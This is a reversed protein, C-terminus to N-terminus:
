IKVLFYIQPIYAKYPNRLSRGGTASPGPNVPGLAKRRPNSPGHSGMEDVIRSLLDPPIVLDLGRPWGRHPLM